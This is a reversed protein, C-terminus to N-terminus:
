RLLDALPIRSFRFTTEYVPFAVELLAGDQQVTANAEESVSDMLADYWVLDFHGKFITPSLRGKLMGERWRDRGTRAGDLYIVDYGGESNRVTAIVYKGGVVGKDPNNNRDFYKWVGEAADVGRREALYGVVTEYTWGTTLSRQMDAELEDMVMVPQWCGHSVIGWGASGDMCCDDVAFTLVHALTNKGVYVNAVSDAVLEVSLTNSGGAMAMGSSVTSQCVVERRGDSAIHSATIDVVYEDSLNGFDANRGRMTVEYRCSGGWSIGWWSDSSGARERDSPLSGRAEMVVYGTGVPLSAIGAVSDCIEGPQYYHRVPLAAAIEGASFISWLAALAVRHIVSIHQAFRSM